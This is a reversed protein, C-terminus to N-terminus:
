TVKPTVTVIGELIRTVVNAPSESRVDFVYRGANLNSTQNSTLVLSVNGNASDTITCAFTASANASYYSKKVNSTIMYGLINAPTGTADDNITITTTYTSGQDVVLEAYGAM